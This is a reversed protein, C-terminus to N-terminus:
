ELVDAVDSCSSNVRKKFFRLVYFPLSDMVCRAPELFSHFLHGRLKLSGTMLFISIPEVGKAHLTIIIVLRNLFNM